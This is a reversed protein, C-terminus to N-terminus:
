DFSRELESILSGVHAVAESIPASSSMDVGAMQLLELPPKSGGANIMDLWRDVAPQGEELIRQSAYTSTTLGASYTYPYLGMYYHPQRMWTLEAGDNLTVADGWFGKLTERKLENLKSTTLIVNEEALLYVERQFHAELLHTVFNHYYTGLLSLIVFRKMENSDAQKLLHDALLLENMTSPAEIMYKSPRSTGIRQNQYAHYFHGAHGLEHALIFTGRMMNTWTLLIYPHYGYPSMCFAGTQKGINDAQDVWREEHAKEIMDVYDSGMVQLAEKIVDMADDFSMEPNYNPDLPAKLDAFTMEDLGLIRKKLKAFRQMHPSLQDYITNIQRHYTDQDVEQDDLLMDLVSSYGRLQSEQVQRNVETAFTSAFTHNYNRLGESFRVFANRRISPDSSLEYKDEFLAQSLPYENGKDDTFSSFNLDAAKSQKYITYPAQLTESLSALVHETEKSLLHNKNTQCMTIFREYERLVPEENFYQEIEDKSLQAIEYEIFAFARLMRSHVRSTKGSLEQNKPDTGDAASKLHAYSQIPVIQQQLEEQYTLVELLAKASETVHGEYADLKPLQKSFEDYAHQWNDDNSFLSDLDWTQSQEIEARKLRNIM